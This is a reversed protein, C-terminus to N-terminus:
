LNEANLEFIYKRVANTVTEVLKNRVFHKMFRM